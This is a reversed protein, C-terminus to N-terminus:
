GRLWTVTKSVLAACFELGKDGPWRAQQDTDTMYGYPARIRSVFLSEATLTIVQEKVGARFSLVDMHGAWIAIPDDLTQYPAGLFQIYVRCPRGTVESDASAAYAMLESTAGTLTFTAQPASNHTPTELGSVSIVHGSGEWTNGGAVLNGIGDWFRKTASAFEFEFLTAVSVRQGGALAAVTDPLM